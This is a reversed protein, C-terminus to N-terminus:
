PYMRVSDVTWTTWTQHRETQYLPQWTLETLVAKARRQTLRSTSWPFSATGNSRHNCIATLKYGVWQTVTAIRPGCTPPDFLNMSNTLVGRIRAVIWSLNCLHITWRFTYTINNAPDTIRPPHIEIQKSAYMQVRKCKRPVRFKLTLHPMGFIKVSKVSRKSSIGWIM